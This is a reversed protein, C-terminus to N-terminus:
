QVELVLENSRARAERDIDLVDDITSPPPPDYTDLMQEITPAIATFPLREELFAQVAVENAANLVVSAAGGRRLSAYAYDLCRFRQRDPVEFTLPGVTAFDLRRAGSAVREPWALAYALPTRMDPTGMQALVSGDTFEVMSHIVSQPHIVIDIRDPTVGFLWSAEIVELGKNMLTASDVSIKRGMVWKPHACAEDPTVRDLDDRNLFPGGSATLILRAGARESPSVNALCQHIANHESDVPLLVGGGRQVATMLLAGACVIAEKNALLLRKGAEAAALTSQLGAAGVIAALVTDCSDAQAVEVLARQGARALTKAGRSHLADRLARELSADGIVAVDADFKAAIDALENVSSQATVAHLRFRQPHRAIVDLASTGISGTAGLITISRM